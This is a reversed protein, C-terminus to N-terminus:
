IMTKIFDIADIARQIQKRDLMEQVDSLAYVVAM